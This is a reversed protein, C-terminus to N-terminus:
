TVDPRSTRDIDPQCVADYFSACSRSYSGDTLRQRDSLALQDYPTVDDCMSVKSAYGRGQFFYKTKTLGPVGCTVRSVASTMVIENDEEVNELGHFIHNIQITYRLTYVGDETAFDIK